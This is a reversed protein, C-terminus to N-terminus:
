ATHCAKGQGWRARSDRLARADQVLPKLRSGPMEPVPLPEWVSGRRWSGPRARPGARPLREPVAEPGRGRGGARAPGLGCPPISTFCVSCSPRPQQLWLDRRVTSALLVRAPLQASPPFPRKAGGKRHVAHNSPWSTHSCSPPSPLHQTLLLFPQFAGKPSLVCMAVREDHLQRRSECIDTHSQLVQM